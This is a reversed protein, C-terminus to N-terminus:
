FSETSSRLELEWSWAGKPQALAAMYSQAIAKPSFLDPDESAQNVGGDIVFHVVHIGAPASSGRL